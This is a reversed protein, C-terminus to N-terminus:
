SRIELGLSSVAQLGILLNFVLFVGRAQHMALGPRCLRSVSTTRSSQLKRRELWLFRDRSFLVFNWDRAM